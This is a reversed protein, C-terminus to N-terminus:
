QGCLVLNLPESSVLSEALTTWQPDFQSALWFLRGATRPNFPGSYGSEGNAARRADFAVKSHVFEIHQREGTAFPQLWEVARKLSSGDGSSLSYWDEGRSRAALAAQLLPELDYLVYHIADRQYFDMVSGDPKINNALQATFLRRADDFLTKDNLAVAIMAVLKIRHSQWNNAFREPVPNQALAADMTDVYSLAWNRLFDEYTKRQAPPIKDKVLAFTAILDDFHTENIPNLDPQYIGLWGDLYRMALANYAQGEGSRWALAANYMVEFDGTAALSEEKGQQGRLLGETKINVLPNPDSSLKGDLEEVLKAPAAQPPVTCWNSTSTALQTSVLLLALINM